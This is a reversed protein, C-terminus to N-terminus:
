AGFLRRLGQLYCERQGNLTQLASTFATGTCADVAQLIAAAVDSTRAVDVLLWPLGLQAMLLNKKQDGLTGDQRIQTGDHLCIAPVGRNLANIVLHYTDTVVFRAGAIRRHMQRFRWDAIFRPKELNLWDLWLPKLGSRRALEGLFGRDRGRLTRGLFCVFYDSRSRDPAPPHRLLWACDMGPEVRAEPVLRRLTELSGEDRPLLLDASRVFDLFRTGAATFEPGDAGLFCGGVGFVRADPSRRKVDLHLSCWNEWAAERTPSWRRKVERDVYDQAGWMPNNLFDGWYVITDFSALDRPSRVLRFRLGGTRRREQTVVHTVPLGIDAFFQRAALDVSHMGYNDPNFASIVAIGTLDRGTM